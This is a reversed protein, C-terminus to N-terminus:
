CHIQRSPLHQSEPAFHHQLQHEQIRMPASIAYIQQTYKAKQEKARAIHRRWHRLVVKLMGPDTAKNPQQRCLFLIFLTPIDMVLVHIQHIDAMAQLGFSYRDLEMEATKLEKKSHEKPWFELDMWRKAMTMPVGAPRISILLLYQM